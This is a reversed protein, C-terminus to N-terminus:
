TGEPKPFGIAHIGHGWTGGEAVGGVLGDMRPDSDLSKVRVFGDCEHIASSLEITVAHAEGM